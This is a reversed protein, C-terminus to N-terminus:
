GHQVQRYCRISFAKPGPIDHQWVRVANKVKAMTDHVSIVRKSNRDHCVVAFLWRDKPKAM